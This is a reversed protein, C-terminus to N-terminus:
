GDAWTIRGSKRRGVEPFLSAVDVVTAVTDEAPPSAPRPYGVPPALPDGGGAPRASGRGRRGGLEPFVDRAAALLPDGRNLLSTQLLDAPVAELSEILRETGAPDRDYLDRYLAAREATFKGAHVAVALVQERRNPDLQM